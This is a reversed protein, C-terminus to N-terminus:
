NVFFSVKEDLFFLDIRTYLLVNLLHDQDVQQSLHSCRRNLFRQKFNDLEIKTESTIGLSEHRTKQADFTFQSFTARNITLKIGSYIELELM